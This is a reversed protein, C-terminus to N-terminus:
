RDAERKEIHTDTQRKEKEPARQSREKQIHRDTQRARRKRETATQRM